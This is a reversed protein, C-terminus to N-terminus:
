PKTDPRATWWGDAAAAVDKYSILQGQRTGLSLDGGYVVAQSEIPLGLEDAAVQNLVTFLRPAYTASSKIEIAYCPRLGRQVVLDVEHQAVDRWFSLHPVRAKAYGSKLVESLIASEFIPGRHESVLLEQPSQIGILTCALGADLFYLKKTKVLSKGRNSFYPELFCIIHSAELVSLWSKATNLAVGSDSALSSVNLRQGTRLACLQIFTSFKRPRRVGLEQRVDRELYTQVYSLFFTEPDIDADYLRPYGGQFLWQEMSQPAIGAQSLEEYSLPLLTLLAVRGALSQSVADMLLFNQSGTLIFRGAAGSEDVVGQLYSFLDPVRQAEDFIVQSGYRLLFSKPDEDFSRRVDPNEFSLYEYDPFADRVLTTKGSQRPGTVSVIPYKGALELLRGKILREIM